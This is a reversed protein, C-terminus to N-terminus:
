TARKSPTGPDRLWDLEETIEEGMRGEEAQKVKAELEAVKRKNRAAARTEYGREAELLDQKAAACRCGVEEM